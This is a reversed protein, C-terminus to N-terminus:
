PERRYCWDDGLSEDLLVEVTWLTAGIPRCWLSNVASRPTADAGLRILTGNKAEFIKWSSLEALVMAVDRRIRLTLDGHARSQKGLLSRSGM